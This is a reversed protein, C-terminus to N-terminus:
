SGMCFQLVRHCGRRPSNDILQFSLLLFFFFLFFHRKYHVGVNIGAALPLARVGSSGVFVVSFYLHVATFSIWACHTCWSHAYTTNLQVTFQALYCCFVMCTYVSQIVHHSYLQDLCLTQCCFTFHVCVM